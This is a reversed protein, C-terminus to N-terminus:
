YVLLFNEKFKLAFEMTIDQIQRMYAVKLAIFDPNRESENTITDTGTHKDQGTADRNHSYDGKSKYSPYETRATGSPLEYETDINDDSDSDKATTDHQSGYTTTMTHKTLAAKSLDFSTTYANYLETYYNLWQNYTDIMYEYMESNDSTGIEYYDFISRLMAILTTEENPFKAKAIFEQGTTTSLWEKFLITKSAETEPFLDSM